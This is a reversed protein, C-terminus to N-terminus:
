RLGIMDFARPLVRPRLRSRSSNSNTERGVNFLSSRSLAGDPSLTRLSARAAVGRSRRGGTAASIADLAGYEDDPMMAIEKGDAGRLAAGYHALIAPVTNSHGVVLATAGPKLADIATFMMEPKGAPITHLKSGAAADSEGAAPVTDGEGLAVAATDRARRYESTFAADIAQAGLM